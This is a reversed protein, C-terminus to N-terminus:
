IKQVVLDLNVPVVQGPVCATTATGQALPSADVSDAVLGFTLQAGARCCSSYDLVGIDDQTRGPACVAVGSSDVLERDELVDGAENAIKLSCGGIQFTTGQDLSPDLQVHVNYYSYESVQCSQYHPGHDPRGDGFCGLTIQRSVPGSTVCGRALTTHNGLAPSTDNGCSPLFFPLFGIAATTALRMRNGLIPRRMM